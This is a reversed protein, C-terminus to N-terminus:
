VGNGFFPAGGFSFIGGDRAIMWYGATGDAAMGVVPQNLPISGLSGEFPLGFSFLGGDSAVFRYGSGNSAAEMGVIPRNLQLSGTSGEFPAGFSFIGGDTAVLWYGGTANDTAIGVVPQNLPQGGMSGNFAADGFAFVGGDSAVLWYGKGNSTSAMAVIPKDLVMSGTSGWFAADGFSFIGGDAGLLWYGRGDPTSTLGIIPANLSHGTLGGHAAANGFSEVTGDSAALWYGGGGPTAAMAVFTAFVAIPADSVTNSLAFPVGNSSGSPTTVQLFTTGSACPPVSVTLMGDYIVNPTVTCNAGFTVGTAGTLYIGRIALPTGSPGSTPSVSLLKPPGGAPLGLASSLADMGSAPPTGNAYEGFVGASYGSSVAAGMVPTCPGSTCLSNLIINRHIWCGSAASSTCSKNVTASTSGAWGDDYMYSYDAELPNVYTILIAGADPYDGTAVVAPEQGANAGQQAQQDMVSALGYEPQLGRVTRELNFVALFQQGVTLGAYNSPLTMPALGELSRAHDINQLESNICGSSVDDGAGCQFQSTQPTNSLTRPSSAGAGAGTASSTALVGLPVGLILV